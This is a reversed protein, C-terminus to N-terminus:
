LCHFWKSSFTLGELKNMSGSIIEGELNSSRLGKQRMRHVVFPYNVKPASMVHSLITGEEGGQIFGLLPFNIDNINKREINSTLTINRKSMTSNEVDIM